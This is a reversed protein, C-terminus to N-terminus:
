REGLTLHGGHQLAARLYGAAMRNANANPHWPDLGDATHQALSAPEHPSFVPLLDVPALGAVQALERLRVHLGELQYSDYGGTHPFIPHIMFVGPVGEAQLTSGIHRVNSEVESWYACHLLLHFEEECAQSLNQERLQFLRRQVFDVLHIGPKYYYEGMAGNANHYVPHAPDNLVYSWVVLDPSYRLANNELVIIEQSTSYGSVAMVMVEFRDIGDVKLLNLENQLLVGLSENPQLGQGMAVSDGIMVIRFVGAPRQLAYDPGLYGDANAGCQGPRIEYVLGPHSSRRTCVENKGVSQSLEDINRQHQWRLVGEVVLLCVLLSALSLGIGSLFSKANGTESRRSCRPSQM